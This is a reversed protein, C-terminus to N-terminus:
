PGPPGIEFRCAASGAAVCEVESVVYEAGTAWKLAEELSGVYLHCLPADATRQHCIACRYDTYNFRDGDERVEIRAQPNTDMLAKAMNSLIFKARMKQPMLKLAVGAIGMLAAQERVAYQFSARGIRRLMGKGGRGYFEEIAQNLRAYEVARAGTELNDPPKEDAYRELGAQRLVAKLGNAGMIAEVAVLAQRLLANVMTWEDNPQTSM